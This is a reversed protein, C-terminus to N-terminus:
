LVLAVGTHEHTWTLEGEDDPPSAAVFGDGPDLAWTQEDNISESDTRVFTKARGIPVLVPKAVDQLFVFAQPPAAAVYWWSDNKPRTLAGAITIVIRDLIADPDYVGESTNAAHVRLARFPANLPMAASRPDSFPLKLDAASAFSDSITVVLAKGIEATFTGIDDLPTPADTGNLAAALESLKADSSRGSPMEIVVLDSFFSRLGHSQAMGGFWKNLIQPNRAVREWIREGNWYDVVPTYEAGKPWGRIYERDNVYRKAQVTLDANTVWLASRCDKRLCATVMLDLENGSTNNEYRSTHKCQTLHREGEPSLTLIDQKEDGPGDTKDVLTHGEAHVLVDTVFEVFRDSGIRSMYQFVASREPTITVRELEGPVIHYYYASSAQIVHIKKM